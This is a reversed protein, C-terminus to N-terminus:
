NGKDAPNSRPRNLTRLFNKSLYAFLTRMYRGGRYYVMQILGSRFNSTGGAHSVLFYQASEM